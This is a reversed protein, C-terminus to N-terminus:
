CVHVKTKEVVELVVYCKPSAAIKYKIKRNTTMHSNYWLVCSVYFKKKVMLISCPYPSVSTPFVKLFREYAERVKDVEGDREAEHLITLWADTDYSDEVIRQELVDDVDLRKTRDPTSPISTSIDVSVDRSPMDSHAPSDM